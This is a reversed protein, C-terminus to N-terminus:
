CPDKIKGVPYMAFRPDIPAMILFLSQTKLSSSFWALIISAHLSVPALTRMYLWLSIFSKSSFSFFVFFTFRISANKYKSKAQELFQAPQKHDEAAPALDGVSELQLDALRRMTKTQVKEDASDELVDSYERVAKGRSNDIESDQPDIQKEQLSGIRSPSQACGTLLVIVVATVVWQLGPWFNNVRLETM